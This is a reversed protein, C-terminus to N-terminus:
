VGLKKDLDHFPMYTLKIKNLKRRYRKFDDYAINGRGENCDSCAIVLNQLENTGGFSSPIVHDLTRTNDDLPIDCWHCIDGDRLIIAARKKRKIKASMSSAM